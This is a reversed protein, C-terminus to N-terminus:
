HWGAKKCEGAILGILQRFLDGLPDREAEPRQIWRWYERELAATEPPPVRGMVRYNEAQAHARRLVAAQRSPSLHGTLEFPLRPRGTAAM